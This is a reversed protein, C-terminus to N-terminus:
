KKKKHFFNTENMHKLASKAVSDPDFYVYASEDKIEVTAKWIDCFTKHGSLNSM